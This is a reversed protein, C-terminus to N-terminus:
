QLVKAEILGFGHLRQWAQRAEERRDAFQPKTEGLLRFAEDFDPRAGAPRYVIHRLYHLSALLELWEEDTGTFSDDRIWLEQARDLRKAVDAKLDFKEFDREGDAIEDRLLFADATLMRSYPGRLYWGYRYGLDAGAVQALYIRKQLNFRKSFTTLDVPLLGLKNLVLALEIRAANM